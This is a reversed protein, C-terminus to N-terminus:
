HLLLKKVDVERGRYRLQVLYFGAGTRPAYRVSHRGYRAPLRKEWLVKGNTNTVVLTLLGELQRKEVLVPIKVSAQAPNPHLSGLRLGTKRRRTRTENLGIQACPLTYRLSDEPRAPSSTNATIQMDMSFPGTIGQTDVAAIGVKYTQGSSLGPILFSDTTFHYRQDYPAGSFDKVGM